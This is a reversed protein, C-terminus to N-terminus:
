TSKLGYHYSRIQNLSILNSRLAICNNKMCLYEKEITFHTGKSTSHACYISIISKVVLKKNIYALMTSLERKIFIIEKLNFCAIKLLFSVLMNQKNEAHYHM